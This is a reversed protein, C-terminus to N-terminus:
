VIKNLAPGYNRAFTQTTENQQEYQAVVYGQTRRFVSAPELAPNLLQAAAPVWTQESSQV